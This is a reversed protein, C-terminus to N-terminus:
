IWGEYGSGCLNDAKPRDPFDPFGQALNLAGHQLALGTMTSFISPGYKSLKDIM